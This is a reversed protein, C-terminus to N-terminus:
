KYCDLTDNSEYKIIYVWRCGVRNKGGHMEIIEWTGNKELVKMKESM